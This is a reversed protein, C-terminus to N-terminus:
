KHIFLKRYLNQTPESPNLVEIIYIAERLKDTPIYFYNQGYLTTVTGDLVRKGNLDYLNYVFTNKAETLIRIAIEKKTPPYYADMNFNSVKWPEKCSDALCLTYIEEENHYEEKDPWRPTFSYWTANKGNVSLGENTKGPVSVNFIRNEKFLFVEEYRPHPLNDPVYSISFIIEVNYLEPYEKIDTFPYTGIDYVKGKKWVRFVSTDTGPNSIGYFTESDVIFRDYNALSFNGPIEVDTVQGDNYIHWKGEGNFKKATVFYIANQVGYALRLKDGTYSFVKISDKLNYKYVDYSNTGTKRSIIFYNNGNVEAMNGSFDSTDANDIIPLVDTIIKKGDFLNFHVVTSHINESWTWWIWDNLTSYGLINGSALEKVTEGDYYMLKQNEGGGGNYRNKKWVIYKAGVLADFDAQDDYTLRQTIGDKVFYIESQGGVLDSSQWAITTGHISPKGDYVNNNTIRINNQGKLCFSSLCISFLTIGIRM